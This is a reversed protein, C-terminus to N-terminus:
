VPSRELIHIVLAVGGIQFLGGFEAGICLHIHVHLALSVRAVQFFQYLFTLHTLLDYIVAHAIDQAHLEAESEKVIRIAIGLVRLIERGFGEGSGLFCGFLGGYQELVVIDQWNGIAM